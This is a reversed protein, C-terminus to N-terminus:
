LVKKMYLREYAEKRVRKEKENLYAKVILGQNKTKRVAARRVPWSTDNYAADIVADINVREVAVERVESYSDYLAEYALFEENRVGRLAEARIFGPFAKNKVIKILESESNIGSVAVFKVYYSPDSYVVRIHVNEDEVKEISMERIESDLSFLSLKILNSQSKVYYFANLRTEFKKGTLALNTMEDDDSINIIPMLKMNDTNREM